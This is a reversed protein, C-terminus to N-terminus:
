RSGRDEPLEEIRTAGRVYAVFHKAWAPTHPNFPRPYFVVVKAADWPAFSEPRQAYWARNLNAGLLWSYVLDYDWDWHWEHFRDTRRRYGAGLAIWPTVEDVGYSRALRYTQRFTELTYGLEPVCYLRCCFTEAKEEFTFRSSRSWSFGSASHYVGRGYWEIRAAPLLARAIDYFADYKATIARNWTENGPKINFRETDFLVASIKIDTQYRSNARNIVEIIGTLKQRFRAIEARHQPGFDTPPANKPFGRHWPSYNVGITV